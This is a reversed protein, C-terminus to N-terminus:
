AAMSGEQKEAPATRPFGGRKQAKGAPLAASVSGGGCDNIINGQVPVSVPFLVVDTVPEQLAQSELRLRVAHLAGAAFQQLQQVFRAPLIVAGAM